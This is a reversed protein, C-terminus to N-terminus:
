TELFNRLALVLAAETEKGPQTLPLRCGGCDYGLLRMAEKAPMPNVDSFLADMLPLLMRHLRVAKEQQGTRVANVMSAMERPVINSVVSIVGQGGLAMVPLTMDDNGSWVSFEGPCASLLRSIKSISQSAEKIGAINPIGSLARCVDIPIDVGTRSPVNYMIVPIEVAAAVTRFHTYLGEPNAKNYYPSVVLVADAGAEQADASLISAHYTDNSGTGAIIMMNSGVYNKARRIMTIKEEDSLTSAEGTTGCLVVNCIGGEMQRRLLRELMPYNVAGNIFPTVLATCVGSFLPQKM